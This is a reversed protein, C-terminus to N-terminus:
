YNLLPLIEEEFIRRHIIRYHPSYAKSYAESHHGVYASGALRREIEQRDREYDPLDLAMSRIVAEIRAWEESWQGVSVPEVSNASRVLADLFRDFPVKREKLVSLNVRCYNHQWGAPEAVAGSPESYSDLENQLYRAAAERDEIIHGPGFRDQFFNKYLDKLTSAPYTEMQVTVAQRVAAEFGEQASLAPVAFTASLILYVLRINM